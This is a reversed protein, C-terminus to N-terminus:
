KGLAAKLAALDNYLDTMNQATFGSGVGAFILRANTFDSATGSNNRACIFINRSSLATATPADGSNTATDVYVTQASAATRNVALFHAFNGGIGYSQIATFANLGAANVLSGNKQIGFYSISNSSTGIFWSPQTPAATTSWVFVMGDNISGLYSTPSFGLNGYGTSGDGAVSTSTHTLTGHWVINHGKMGIANAIGTGSDNFFPYFEYLKSWYGHAKASTVFSDFDVQRTGSTIGAAVAYSTTEANTIKYTRSGSQWEAVIDGEATGYATLRLQAVSDASLSSPRASVWQWDTPFTLTSVATDSTFLRMRVERGGLRIKNRNTTSFTISSGTLTVTKFDNTKFDIVVSSSQSGYAYVGQDFTNTIYARPFGLAAGQWQEDIWFTGGIEDRAENLATSLQNWGHIHSYFHFAVNTTTNDAVEMRFGVHRTMVQNLSVDWYKGCWNLFHSYGNNTIYSSSTDPIGITPTPGIRDEDYQLAYIGHYHGSGGFHSFANREQSMGETFSFSGYSGFQLEPAGSHEQNYWIGTYTNTGWNIGAMPQLILYGNVGDVGSSNTQITLTHYAVGNTASVAGTPTFAAWTGDGRLYTTNNATGSGLRASNLTGSTISSAPINTLKSGNGGFLTATVFGAFANIPANLRPINNSLQNEAVVGTLVAAFAAHQAYPVPHVQSRPSLTVFGGGGNTRVRLELWYATGDFVNGFDLTTSFLGDSVVVSNTIIFGSIPDGDSNTSYLGFTIDYLGNAPRGSEVLHGNYSFATTNSQAWLSPLFVTLLFAVALLWAPSPLTILSVGSIPKQDSGIDACVYLKQTTM